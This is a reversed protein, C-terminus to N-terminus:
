CFDTNYTRLGRARLRVHYIITYHEINQTIIFRLTLMVIACKKKGRILKTYFQLISKASWGGVRM